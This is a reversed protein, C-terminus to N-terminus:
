ITDQLEEVKNWDGTQPNTDYFDRHKIKTVIRDGARSFLEVKPRAVIGEAYFDGWQSKLGAKVISEADDLTGEGIVPVSRIGLKKAVDAVNERSLWWTEIRVDFLVFDTNLGYKGAGKQIGAGYGEGYLTFDETAIVRALLEAPFLDQLRRVLKAPLAADDTRGDFRTIDGERTIRINTGDIKETFIWARSALYEIEPTAYQGPLIKGHDDRMYVSNIKHYESM